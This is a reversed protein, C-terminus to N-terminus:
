YNQYENMVSIEDVVLLFFELYLFSVNQKQEPSSFIM